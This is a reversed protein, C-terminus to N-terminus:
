RWRGRTWSSGPIRGDPVARLVLLRSWRRGVAVLGAALASCAWGVPRTLLVEAAGADWAWGLGLGLLPLALVVRASTRPGALAVRVGGPGGRREQADRGLARPAGEASPGGSRAAVDLVVRVDRWAPGASAPRGGVLAWARPAPVGAAVLVAVRDLVRAAASADDTGPGRGPPGRRAASRDTVGPRRGRGSARRASRRRRGRLLGGRRSGAEVGHTRPARRPGGREGGSPRAGGARARRTCRPGRAPGRRGAPRQRAADGCRRRPGTNLASLLERVEAGRCEGVVLRDPRMRLAERVLRDLGIAGVGEANAQRAELAVVHPHDVRLEAVDEVTVIREDHPVAALMAALVTTKGSGTAGTVLVNRREAVARELVARPVARFAGRRELSALDTPGAVPAAGVTRNGGVSVPALVVHVRVGDGHRVDACPTTEDVHRGGLAVLEAALARVRREPLDPPVRELGRGRDVWTGRGGVVLVDTTAADTVLAALEEFAAADVARRGRTPLRHVGRLFPEDVVSALHAAPPRRVPVAPPSSGAAVRDLPLGGDPSRRSRPLEARHRHMAVVTPRRRARTDATQAGKNTAALMWVLPPNQVGRRFGTGREAGAGDARRAVTERGQGCFAAGDRARGSPAVDAVLAHVPRDVTRCWCASRQSGARLVGRCGDSLFFLRCRNPSSTGGQCRHIPPIRGTGGSVLGAPVVTGWSCGHEAVGAVPHGLPARGPRQPAGVSPYDGVAGRGCRRSLVVSTWVSGPRRVGRRRGWRRGWRPRRRRRRRRSSRCAAAGGVTLGEPGVLCAAQQVPPCREGPREVPGVGREGPPEVVALEVDGLVAEVAVDAGAVPVPDRDVELAGGAVGAADGVRLEGGLHVAGRVHQGVEADLLAVAHDDVHREDGLGDDRHEGDGADARHVGDDEAAEARLAEAGRMSSAPAFSTTVASPPHRRPATEGSLGATSSARVPAPVSVTSCTRTTLRPPLSMAQFSRSRHHCSSSAFAAGSCSACANGASVGRNM